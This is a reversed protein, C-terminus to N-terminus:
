CRNGACYFMDVWKEGGSEAQIRVAVEEVDAFWDAGKGEQGSGAEAVADLDKLDRLEAELAQICEELKTRTELDRLDSNWILLYRELAEKLVKAIWDSKGTAEGRVHSSSIKSLRFKGKGEKTSTTTQTAPATAIGPVALSDSRGDVEMEEDEEPGAMPDTEIDLDVVFSSGALTLSTKLLGFQSDELYIQISLAEALAKLLSVPALETRKGPHTSQNPLLTTLTSTTPLLASQHTWSIQTRTCESMLICFASM